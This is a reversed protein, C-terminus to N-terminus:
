TQIQHLVGCGKRRPKHGKEFAKVKEAEKEDFDKVIDELIKIEKDSFGSTGTNRKGIFDDDALKSGRVLRHKILGYESFYPM